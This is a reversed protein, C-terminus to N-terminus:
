QPYETNIAMEKRGAHDGPCQFLCDIRVDVGTGKVDLTAGCKAAAEALTTEAQLKDIDIYGLPRAM